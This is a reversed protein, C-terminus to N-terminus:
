SLGINIFRVIKKPAYVMPTGYLLVMFRYAPSIMALDMKMLPALQRFTLVESDFQALFANACNTMFFNRDRVLGTTAGNYGSTREQLSIDFIPYYTATAATTANKQSRYIRFGTTSNPGATETFALDVANGAAIATAVASLSTLASEGFRNIASVAYFYNGVDTTGFKSLADVPVVAPAVGATPAAPANVSTAAANLAKAPAPNMFIDHKLQIKGFQSAFATVNQGMTVNGDIANPGGVPIFKNGYFGEVFDSLVKPPAFLTGVYGFNNIIANAARQINPESLKAGRLDIVVDSNVYDALSLYGDGRYHQTYLGNFEQPIIDADGTTLKSNLNRLIHLTGNITEREIASGIGATDVLTMPHTVSKLVGMFKVLQARRIYTSDEEIPLEGENYFGGRQQGYSALQNYEEVTNRADSKPFEKWLVIHEEKYTIVKLTKELSEVKLPSGSATTLNTTERGTIQGAELAKNIQMLNQYADASSDGFMAQNPNFVQNQLM